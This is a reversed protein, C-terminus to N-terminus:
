YRPRTPLNLEDRLDNENIHGPHQDLTSADADHDYPLGVAALERNNVGGTQGDALTGTVYNYAHVMEHFLGVLPPRNQWDEGGLSIREPLYNIVADSGSGPTGDPQLWANPRDTAGASNGKEPQTQLRITTTHGSNDLAMLMARGEPTSRLADLDSQVRAQFAADGEIVISSGLTGGDDNRTSMDVTTVTDGARQADTGTVTDTDQTYLADNGDGGHVRDRGAGAAVADDGAGGYLSDNGRGGMVQDNGAGGFLSDNGGGGDMYDREAGGLMTDTGGLGYMVDRGEGGQLSDSGAGGQLYDDGAGGVLTNRGGGGVLTDNGDGGEIRLNATVDADVSIRDNGDGGRLTVNRAQEATLTVSNGDSTVTLGGDATRSVTAENNGTGLDVVTRGSRDTTVQPGVAPTAAGPAPRRGGELDVTGSRRPGSDFGDTSLRNRLQQAERDQRPAVNAPKATDVRPQARPQARTQSPSGGGGIRPGSM